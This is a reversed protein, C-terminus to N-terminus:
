RRADSSSGSRELPDQGSRLSQCRELLFVVTWTPVSRQQWFPSTSRSERMGCILIHATIQTGTHAQLEINESRSPACLEPCHLHYIFLNFSETTTATLQPELNWSYYYLLSPLHNRMRKPSLWKREHTCHGIGLSMGGYVYQLKKTKNNRLHPSGFAIRM